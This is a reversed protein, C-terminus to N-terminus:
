RRVSPWVPECALYAAAQGNICVCVCDCGRQDAQLGWRARSIYWIKREETLNFPCFVWGMVYVCVCVCVCVCVRM